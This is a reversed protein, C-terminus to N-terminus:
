VLALKKAKKALARKKKLERTQYLALGVVVGEDYKEMLDLYYGNDCFYVSRANLERTITEFPSFQRDESEIESIVNLWDESDVPEECFVNGFGFGREKGLIYAKRELNTALRDISYKIGNRTPLSILPSGHIFLDGNIDAELGNYFQSFKSTRM